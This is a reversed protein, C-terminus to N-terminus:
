VADFTWLGGRSFRAAISVGDESHWSYGDEASAAFMLTSGGVQEHQLRLREIRPSEPM